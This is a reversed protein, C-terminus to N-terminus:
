QSYDEDLYCVESGIVEEAYRNSETVMLTMLDDSFFMEFVERPSEPIATAPGVPSTFPKVQVPNLTATWTAPPPPSDPTPSSPSPHSSGAPSTHSSAPVLTNLSPSSPLPSTPSLDIDTDDEDLELDSFEDDSGEMVPEDPDDYDEDDDVDDVDELM